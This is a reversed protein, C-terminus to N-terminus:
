QEVTGHIRASFAITREEDLREIVAREDDSLDHVRATMVFRDPEIFWESMEGMLARRMVRGLLLDDNHAEEVLLGRLYVALDMVEEYADRTFSRGNNAQLLSSYKTLGHAKRAEIDAVVLDHMSPRDSPIPAAQDTEPDRVDSM